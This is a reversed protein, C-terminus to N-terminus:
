HVRKLIDVDIAQITESTGAIDIRTPHLQFLGELLGFFVQWDPHDDYMRIEQTIIGREKEVAEVTFYPDQVFGLLTALSEEFRDTCSFFYSTTTFSTTANPSAGLRAFEDFVDGDATEFLKHELFHAIGDPIRQDQGTAPDLFRNNVSGFWTSCIAFKKNFGRKPWVLIDLGCDLRAKYLTEKLVDNSITEINM